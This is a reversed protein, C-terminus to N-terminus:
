DKAEMLVLFSEPHDLKGAAVGLMQAVLRGPLRALPHEIGLQSLLADALGKCAAPTSPAQIVIGKAISEPLKARYRWRRQM